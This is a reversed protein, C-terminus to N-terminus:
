DKVLNKYVLIRPDVFPIFRTVFFGGYFGRNKAKVKYFITVFVLYPIQYIKHKVECSSYKYILTKKVLRRNRFRFVTSIHISQSPFKIYCLNM